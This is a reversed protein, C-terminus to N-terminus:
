MRSETRILRSKEPADVEETPLEATQVPEVRVQELMPSDPAIVVLGPEIAALVQPSTEVTPKQDKQGCGASLWLGCCLVSLWLTKM